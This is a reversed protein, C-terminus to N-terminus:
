CAEAALWEYWERERKCWAGLAETQRLLHLHYRTSVLEEFLLTQLDFQSFCDGCEDEFAARLEADSQAEFLRAMLLFAHYDNGDALQLRWSKDTNAKVWAPTFEKYM